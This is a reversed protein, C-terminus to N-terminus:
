LYSPVCAMYELKVRKPRKEVYIMTTDLFAHGLQHQVTRPNANNDILRTALSHRFLHPYVRKKISTRAVVRKVLRRVMYTQLKNGHRLTTFLYDAATRPYINLYELIQLMCAGDANTIRSKDGKGCPVSVENNGIDIDGVRLDCLEQNRLGSYALLSLLAKERANYTSALIVAVEAPTMIDVPLHKAKKRRGLTISLGTFLAYREIGLAINNIHNASYNKQYAAFMYSEFQEVTPNDTGIDRLIKSVIRGLCEITSPKLGDHILLHRKFPEIGQQGEIKKPKFLHIVNGM